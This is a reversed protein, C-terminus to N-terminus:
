KVRISKGARINSGKIGNIRQLNKVTTHNRRAIDSLTDGQRITVTKSRGSNKKRRSTRDKKSRRANNRSGSYRSTSPRYHTDDAAVEVISRRTLLEDARYNYISDGFDIFKTIVDTPLRLACPKMAGPVLTTRYMPNLAKLGALDIEPCLAAIQELSIDRTVIITDTALPYSTQMPAINHDCYYNMIYNAAIFAPVYGRTERPLYPYIKWYDRSGDARHIAKNTNGPGCNYASLVLSWDGYINYLDRLYRAAADSSKIPDRREDILSNVELGYRKATTIMFQWLGTAGVRSVATPNYASEIVPLYRLELPLGYRDLAEEFIPLYFNGAGLMYSVSRRLRGAYQDIFTQVVNNYPLEMIAPIRSLKDQYEEPEFTRPEADTMTSDPALYQEAHWQMLLQDIDLTMGEPLDIIEGGVTVSSPDQTTAGASTTDDDASTTDNEDDEDDDEDDIVIESGEEPSEETIVQAMMPMCALALGCAITFFRKM